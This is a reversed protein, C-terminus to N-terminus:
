LRKVAFSIVRQAFSQELFQMSGCEVTKVARDFHDAGVECAVNAFKASRHCSDYEAATLPSPGVEV